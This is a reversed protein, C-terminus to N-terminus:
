KKGNDDEVTLIIKSYKEWKLSLEYLSYSMWKLEHSIWWLGWDVESTIVLSTLQPNQHIFWSQILWMIILIYMVDFGSYKNWYDKKILWNKQMFCKFDTPLYWCDIIVLKECCHSSMNGCRVPYIKSYDMIVM